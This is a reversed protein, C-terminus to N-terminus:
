GELAATQDPADQMARYQIYLRRQERDEDTFSEPTYQGITTGEAVDDGPHIISTIYEKGSKPIYLYITSKHMGTHFYVDDMASAFGAQTRPYNAM